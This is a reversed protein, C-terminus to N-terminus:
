SEQEIHNLGSFLAGLKLPFSNPYTFVPYPKCILKPSKIGLGVSDIRNVRATNTPGSTIWRKAAQYEFFGRYM